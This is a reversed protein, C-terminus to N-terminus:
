RVFLTAPRLSENELTISSTEDDTMRYQPGQQATGRADRWILDRESRFM